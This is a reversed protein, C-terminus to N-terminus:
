SNYINYLDHRRTRLDSEEYVRITHARRSQDAYAYYYMYYYIINYYRRARRGERRM